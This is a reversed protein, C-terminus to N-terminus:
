GNHDYIVEEEREEEEREREDRRRISISACTTPSAVSAAVTTATDM